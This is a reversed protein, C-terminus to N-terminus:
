ILDSMYVADKVFEFSNYIVWINPLFIGGEQGIPPARHKPVITSGASFMDRMTVSRVKVPSEINKLDVLVESNVPPVKILNQVIKM